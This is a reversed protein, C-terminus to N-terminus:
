SPRATWRRCKSRARGARGARHQDANWCSTTKRASSSRIRSSTCSRRLPQRDPRWARGAGRRRDSPDADRRGRRGPYEGGAQPDRARAQQRPLQHVAHDRDGARRQLAPLHDRQRVPGPDDAPGRRVEGSGNCQPCRIPNTGPEAGSGHCQRALRWGRCRSRRRSASCRRRSPSRSTTACIMAARPGASRRQTASGGFFEEFIDGFGRSAASAASAQGARRRVRGPHAAHGFRDYAARKDTDSLMEYAENVEKFREEADESKNVDPHYPARWSVIPARSPTRTRTVRSAWCKM